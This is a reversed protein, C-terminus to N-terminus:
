FRDIPIAVGQVFEGKANNKEAKWIRILLCSKVTVHAEFDLAGWRMCSYDIGARQLYIKFWELALLASRLDEQGLPLDLIYVLRKKYKRLSLLASIASKGEFLKVALSLVKALAESTLEAQQVQTDM